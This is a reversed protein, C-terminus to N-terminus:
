FRLALAQERGLGEGAASNREFLEDAKSGPSVYMCNYMIRDHERALGGRHYGKTDAFIITGRPGIATIWREPPVVAAMQEDTSREAGHGQERFSQPRTRVRGRPHTGPAYTFPGAGDDVDSMYVFVKLIQWDEPDRHWLQSRRAEVSTTFTHWVNYFRLHTFMGFYDNAIHLFAPQVAFRVFVSLPDLTPRSGLLEYIFTKKKGPIDADRRAQALANAQERELRDVESSLEEFLSSAGLANANSICIGNRVLESAVRAMEGQAPRVASLRYVLSPRLNDVYRWKFESRRYSHVIPRLLTKIM